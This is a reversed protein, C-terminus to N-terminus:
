SGKKNSNKLLGLDVVVAIVMGVIAPTSWAGGFQHYVVAYWLTSVPLFIFGLIPMVNSEWVGNLYDTFFYLVLMMIRPFLLAIIGALIPM